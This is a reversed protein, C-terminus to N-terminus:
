LGMLSGSLHGGGGLAFTTCCLQLYQIKPLPPADLLSSGPRYRPIVQLATIDLEIEQTQSAATSEACAAGIFQDCGHDNRFPLLSRM